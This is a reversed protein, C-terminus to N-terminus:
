LVGDKEVPPRAVGKGKEENKPAPKSVFNRKKNNHKTLNVSDIGGNNSKIREEQQVCLWSNRL